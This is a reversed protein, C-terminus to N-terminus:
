AKYGIDRTEEPGWKHEPCEENLIATKVQMMCGCRTCQQTQAIFFECSRCISMRTAAVREKVSDLNRNLVDWPRPEKTM